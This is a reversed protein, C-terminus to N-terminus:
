FGFELGLWLGGEEGEGQRRRTTVLKPWLCDFPLFVCAHRLNSPSADFNPRTNKGGKKSKGSNSMVRLRNFGLCEPDNPCAEEEARLLKDKKREAQWRPCGDKCSSIRHSAM